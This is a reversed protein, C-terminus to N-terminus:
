FYVSLIGNYRDYGTKLDCHAYNGYCYECRIPTVGGDGSYQALYASNSMEENFLRPMDAPNLYPSRVYMGRENQEKVIIKQLEEPFRECRWGGGVVFDYLEENEMDKIDDETVNEFSAPSAPCMEELSSLM